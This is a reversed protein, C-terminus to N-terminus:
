QTPVNIAAARHIPQVRELRLCQLHYGTSLDPTREVHVALRICESITVTPVLIPLTGQQGPPQDLRTSPHHRDVGSIPIMVVLDVLIELLM